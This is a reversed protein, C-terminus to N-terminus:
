FCVFIIYVYVIPHVVLRPINFARHQFWPQGEDKLIYGCMVTFDQGHGLPKCLVRFGSSVPLLRKVFTCMAKADSPTRPFKTRFVGQLHLNHARKGVETSVGGKICCREHFQQIIDIYNM